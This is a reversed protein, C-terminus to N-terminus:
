EYRLAEIPDLNSAKWAPYYGFIVGVSVSVAVALTIAGWSIMIPWKLIQEVMLSSGSGILVGVIGGTVCMLVAEMLFQSLIDYQKAGVSMRLGIERTRESVCVLMINMIGIGGIVLSIISVCLLLRTIAKTSSSLSAELESLSRITFDNEEGDKIYHRTRILRTIEQIAQNVDKASRASLVIQDINAFKAYLLHNSIQTDSQDPYFDTGSSSPYFGRSSTNSSSDSSTSSQNTTSLSSNAVRYKISTWPALVVDDQDMGMMNAGKVRLVGIVKFPVNMIRIEKGIPSKGNFLEKVITQGVLCVRNANMVDSDSFVHGMSLEKWNQVTLYAPTTGYISSPVWNKNGYVIQTRSQIVPAADLVSPCEKKIANSDQPVLTKLSGSGFTVGGSNASGPFIIISNAGMSAISKQISYSSGQGIAMMTIVSAIGIMIGLTTLMARMLNREMSKLSSLLIANLKM